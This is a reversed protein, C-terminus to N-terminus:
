KYDINSQKFCQMWNEFINKKLIDIEIGFIAAAKSYVMEIPTESVDTELFLRNLPTNKLSKVIKQKGIDDVIASGVSFYFGQKSLQEIDEKTGNFGHLVWPVFTKSEKKVKQIEEIGKVSHLIIPLRLNEAIHVQIRFIELQLDLPVACKKDIGIEGIAVINKTEVTKELTDLLLQKDSKELQWPHIGYSFFTNKSTSLFDEGAMVNVVSICNENGNFIRHSHINVFPHLIM